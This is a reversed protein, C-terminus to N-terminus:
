PLYIPYASSNYDCVYYTWGYSGGTVDKSDDTLDHFTDYCSHNAAGQQTTDVSVTYHCGCGQAQPSGSYSQDTQTGAFGHYGGGLCYTGNTTSMENITNAWAVGYAGLPQAYYEYAFSSGRDPTDATDAGGGPMVVTGAAFMISHVGAFMPWVEDTFPWQLGCSTDFVVLNNGGNTAAHPSSWNGSNVSEGFKVGGNSISLVYPDGYVDKNYDSM